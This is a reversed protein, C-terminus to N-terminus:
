YKRNQPEIGYMKKCYDDTFENMEKSHKGKLFPKVLLNNGIILASTISATVLMIGAASLSRHRYIYNPQM